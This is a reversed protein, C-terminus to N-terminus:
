WAAGKLITIFISEELCSKLSYDVVTISESYNCFSKISNMFLVLLTTDAIEYNNYTKLSTTIKNLLEDNAYSYRFPIKTIKNTDWKKVLVYSPNKSGEDLYFKRERTSCSRILHHVNKRKAFWKKDKLFQRQDTKQFMFVSESEIMTKTINM